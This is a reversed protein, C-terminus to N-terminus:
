DEVIWSDGRRRLSLVANPSSSTPRLGSRRWDYRWDLGCWVTARDGTVEIRTVSLTLDVSNLTQLQTRLTRGMSPWINQVGNM